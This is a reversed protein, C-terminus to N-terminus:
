LGPSAHYMHFDMSVSFMLIHM